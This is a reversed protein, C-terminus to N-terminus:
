ADRKYGSFDLVVPRKKIYGINGNHLDNIGHKLLFNTFNKMKKKGYISLATKTWFSSINRARGAGSCEAAYRVDNQIKEVVKEKTTRNIKDFKNLHFNQLESYTVSVKEQLIFPIGNIEALVKTEPFFMEIGNEIADQYITFEEFSEDIFSDEERPSYYSWKVVVGCNHFILCRKSAGDTLTVRKIGTVRCAKGINTRLFSSSATRIQEKSCDKFMVSLFTIIRSDINNM